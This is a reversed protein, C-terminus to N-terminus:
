QEEVVLNDMLKHTDQCLVNHACCGMINLKHERSHFAKSIVIKNPDELNRFGSLKDLM